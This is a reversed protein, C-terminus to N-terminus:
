EGPKSGADDEGLLTTIRSAVSSKPNARLFTRAVRQAGAHDGTKELAEIRLVTAEQALQKTPFKRDYGALKDLADAGDGGRLASRVQDLAAVEEALTQPTSTPLTPASPIPM